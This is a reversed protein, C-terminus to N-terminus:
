QGAPLEAPDQEALWEPLSKKGLEMYCRNVQRL